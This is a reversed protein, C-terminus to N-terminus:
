FCSNIGFWFLCFGVKPVLGFGFGFNWPFLLNSLGFKVELLGVELGKVVPCCGWPYNITNLLNLDVPFLNSFGTRVPFILLSTFVDV